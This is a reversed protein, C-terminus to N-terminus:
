SGESDSDSDVSAKQIEEHWKKAFDEVTQGESLTLFEMPVRNHIDKPAIRDPDTNEDVVRLEPLSNADRQRLDHLEEYTFLLSDTKSAFPQFDIIHGSELNRTLLFDFVYDETPWKGSVEREWFSAITRKVKEKFDSELMYDYPNPERQSIGILAGNRVFCRFERSTDVHYWKRLVLELDYSPPNSADECGGFVTEPSQDHQAFDSSKLLLYVDAPTTCKLRSSTSLM